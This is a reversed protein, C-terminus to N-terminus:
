APIRNVQGQGGPSGSGTGSMESPCFRWLESSSGSTSSPRSGPEPGSETHIRTFTQFWCRIVGGSPSLQGESCIVQGRSKQHLFEWPFYVKNELGASIPQPGLFCLGYSPM